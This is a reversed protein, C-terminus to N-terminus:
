VGLRTKQKEDYQEQSPYEPSCIQIQEHYKQLTSYLVTIKGKTKYPHSVQDKVNISSHLSLTNLYQM